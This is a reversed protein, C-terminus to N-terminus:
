RTKRNRIKRSIMKLKYIIMFAFTGAAVGIGGCFAVGMAILSKLLM